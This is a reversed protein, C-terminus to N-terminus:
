RAAVVPKFNAIPGGALRQFHPGQRAFQTYVLPRRWRRLAGRRTARECDGQRVDEASRDTETTM